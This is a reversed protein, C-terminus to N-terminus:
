RYKRANQAANNDTDLMLLGRRDNRAMYQKPQCNQYQFAVAHHQQNDDKNETLETPGYLM